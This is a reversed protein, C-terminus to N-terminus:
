PRFEVLDASVQYHFRGDRGQDPESDLQVDEIDVWFLDDPDYEEWNVVTFGATDYNISPMKGRLLDRCDGALHRALGKDNAFVDVWGYVRDETLGSGIEADSGAVSETLVVVYTSTDVNMEETAPLHTTVLQLPPHRRGTDFWGLADLGVRVHNIFSDDLFRDRLGGEVVSM